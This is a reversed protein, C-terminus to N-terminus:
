GNLAGMYKHVMKVHRFPEGSVDILGLSMELVERSSSAQKMTKAAYKSKFFFPRRVSTCYWCECQYKKRMERRKKAAAM